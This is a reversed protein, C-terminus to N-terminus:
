INDLFGYSLTIKNHFNSETIKDTNKGLNFTFNLNKGQKM